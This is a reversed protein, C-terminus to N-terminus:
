TMEVRVGPWKARVQARYRLCDAFWRADGGSRESHGANAYPVVVPIGHARAQLCLDEVHAHFGDLREDFELGSDRRFFVSCCDLTSVMAPHGIRQERCWRYQRKLDIGVIGCVAGERAVRRFHELSGPGFTCDAHCLGFVPSDTIRLYQNALRSLPLRNVNVVRWIRPDNGNGSWEGLRDPGLVRAPNEVILLSLKCDLDAGM